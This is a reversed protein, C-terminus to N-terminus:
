QIAGTPSPIKLGGGNVCVFNAADNTNGSGKWQAVEPYPCLPRTMDVVGKTRHTAIITNPASGQEVWQELVGIKEFDDAGPGGGCHGVAPMMFLRAFGETEKISGMAALVSEYYNVSERPAIINDAWGHYMLLKGGSAQFARLDPNIANLIKGAAKDALTVDRDFDLNRFDWQPNKFLVYRFFSMPIAMPQPGGAQYGWGLESGPELGPFIQKGTRPNTPGAYIKRAAEVQHPTLCTPADSDKCELVKPDFHCRTPDSIIGDMVGDLADCAKVAAKHILLYKSPPIYSAPDVLTAKAPWMCAFMLHTWLSAPNGEAIGNYDHPFRQAETLGQKGGTSCGNWYSFRAATGYYAAIIAKAQVTMEHVSRYGFDVLKETHGLAFSADDGEGEHGTDTSATAFGGKLSEILGGYNIQGAWGGNGVGLFRGNWGAAPMWVEIKIDSDKTPKITAAVRCFAPLSRLTQAIQAVRAQPPQFSPPPSFAGAPVLDAMTITTEALTLSALSECSAHDAPTRGLAARAPLITPLAVVALAYSLVGFRFKWRASSDEHLCAAVKM